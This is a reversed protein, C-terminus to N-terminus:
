KVEDSQETNGTIDCSIISIIVIIMHDLVITGPSAVSEDDDVDKKRKNTQQLAHM